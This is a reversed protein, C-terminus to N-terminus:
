KIMEAKRKDSVSAHMLLLFHLYLVLAAVIPVHNMDLWYLIEAVVFYIGPLITIIAVLEWWSKRFSFISTRSNYKVLGLLLLIINYMFVVCGFLFAEYIAIMISDAEPAYVGRPGNYSVTWNVAFYIIFPLLLGYVVLIYKNKPTRIIM